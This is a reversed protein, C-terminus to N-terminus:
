GGPRSSRMRARRNLEAAMGRIETLDRQLESWGNRLAYDPNSHFAGQFARMRHKFFMVFLKQEIPTPANHLTLLDPFHYKYGRPRPLVGSEYLKSITRIAEATLHDAERIM